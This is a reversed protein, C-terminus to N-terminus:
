QRDGEAIALALDGQRQAYPASALAHYGQAREDESMPPADSQLEAIAHRIGRMSAATPTARTTARQTRRAHM